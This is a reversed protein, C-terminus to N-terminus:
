NTTIFPWCLGAINILKIKNRFKRISTFHFRILKFILKVPFTLLFYTIVKRRFAGIIWDNKICVCCQISLRKTLFFYKFIPHIIISLYYLIIYFHTVTQFRLIIFTIGSIFDINVNDDRISM